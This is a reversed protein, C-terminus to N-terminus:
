RFTEGCMGCKKSKKTARKMGPYKKWSVIHDCEPCPMRKIVMRESSQKM